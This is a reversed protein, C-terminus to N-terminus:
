PRLMNRPFHRFFSVGTEQPSKSGYWIREQISNFVETTYKGDVIFHTCNLLLASTCHTVSICCRNKACSCLTTFVSQDLIVILQAEKSKIICRISNWTTLHSCWVLTCCLEIDTVTSQLNDNCLCTCCISIDNGKWWQWQATYSSVCISNELWAIVRLHYCQANPYSNCSAWAM